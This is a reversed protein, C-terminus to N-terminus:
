AITLIKERKMKIKKIQMNIKRYHFYAHIYAIHMCVNQNKCSLCFYNYGGIGIVNRGWGELIM